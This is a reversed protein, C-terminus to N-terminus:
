EQLGEAFMCGREPRGIIARGWAAGGECVVENGGLAGGHWASAGALPGGCRSSKEYSSGGYNITSSTYNHIRHFRDYNLFM